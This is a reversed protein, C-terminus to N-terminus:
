PCEGWVRGARVVARLRRTATVDRTPDGEVILADAHAGPRLVGVTPGERGALLRGATGTAARLAETPSFGALTVLHALEAHLGGGPLNDVGAPTDTGAGVRGGLDLVRRALAAALRADWDAAPRSKATATHLGDWMARLSDAAEGTRGGNPLAGLDARRVQRLGEHVSLTPVLVAGAEVVARAFRDLTAEDPFQTQPDFGLRRFALAFGSAHEVTRVGLGLAELADVRAASLGRTWRTGLDTMVPLGHERARGVAAGYAEPSLQEYLKVTDVGAAALADVAGEAERADRVIWAGARRDGVEGLVGEGFHRFISEPGDLITGAGSVRPGESSAALARLEALVELNSGADRVSTVGAEPFWRAYHPRAHVHLDVLGPLITGGPGTDLVRARDPLPLGAGVGLVRGERMLVTAHPWLTEGDFLRGTLALPPADTM